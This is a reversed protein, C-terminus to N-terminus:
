LHAISLGLSNWHKDFPDSKDCDFGNDLIEVTYHKREYSDNSRDADRIKVVRGILPGNIFSKKIVISGIEEKREKLAVLDGVEFTSEQALRQSQKKYKSTKTM